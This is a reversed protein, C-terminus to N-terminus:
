VTIFRNMKSKITYTNWIIKDGNYIDIVSQKLQRFQEPTLTLKDKYPQVPFLVGGFDFILHTIM